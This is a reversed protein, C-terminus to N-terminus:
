AAEKSYAGFLAVDQPHRHIKFEVPQRSVFAEEDVGLHFVRAMSHNKGVPYKDPLIRMIGGRRLRTIALEATARVLRTTETLQELSMPGHKELAAIVKADTEQRQKTQLRNSKKSMGCGKPKGM